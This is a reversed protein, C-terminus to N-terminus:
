AARPRPSRRDDVRARADLEHLRPELQGSRGILKAADQFAGRCSDIRLGGVLGFQRFHFPPVERGDVLDLAAPEGVVGPGFELFELGQQMVGDDAAQGIWQDLAGVLPQVIVNAQDPQVSLDGRREHQLGQALVHLDDQCALRAVRLCGRRRHLRM